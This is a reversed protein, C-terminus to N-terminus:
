QPAEYGLQRLMRANDSWNQKVKVHAKLFFRRDFIKELDLRADTSVKKLREGGRGVTIGQHSEKEVWIVADVYTLEGREELALVEVALGYPVEERLTELLKERLMEGVRFEMSRDTRTDKPFLPESKPLYSLIVDLLRDLNNGRRASIPVVEAFAGRASYAEILPLLDDRRKLLDMKNVVLIVPIKEDRLRELVYDDGKRWGTAEVVFVILEAGALSAMASRNMARHMLKGPGSHMGPTDVLVVQSTPNTLIGLISQRTTQPKSTVISIKEDMLANVLTSKGTNPRGVIAVFGAVFTEVFGVADVTDVDDAM